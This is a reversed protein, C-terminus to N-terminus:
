SIIGRKHNEKVENSLETASFVVSEIFDRSLGTLLRKRLLEVAVATEPDPYNRRLAELGALITIKETATLEM